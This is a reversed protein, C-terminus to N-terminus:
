QSSRRISSVFARIKPGEVFWIVGIYLIVGLIAVLVLAPFAIPVFRLLLGYLACQAMCAMVPGRVNEWFRIHAIKETEKLVFILSCGIIFLAM